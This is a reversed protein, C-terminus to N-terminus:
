QVFIKKANNADNKLSSLVGQIYSSFKSMLAVLLLSYACTFIINMDDSTFKFNETDRFFPNYRYILFLSIYVQFFFHVDSFYKSATDSLNFLILFYFIYNVAVFCYFFMIPYKTSKVFAAM